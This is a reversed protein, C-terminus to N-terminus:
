ASRAAVLSFSAGPYYRVYRGERRKDVLGSAVLRDAHWHALSPSLGVRECLGKQDVGPTEGIARAIALTTEHRLTAYAAAVQQRSSAGARADPDANERQPLSGPAFFLRNRGNRTSSVLGERELVRLHYTVTNRPMAVADALDAVASGPKARIAGLLQERSGHDLLREKAIRSYLGVLLALGKLRDFLAGAASPAAAAAAATAAVALLPAPPLPAVEPSAPAAQPAAVVPEPAPMPAARAPAPTPAADDIARTLLALDIRPAPGATIDPLPVFRSVPRLVPALVSRSEESAAATEESHAHSTDHEHAPEEAPPAEPAPEEEAPAPALWGNVMTIEENVIGVALAATEAVVPTYEEAQAHAGPLALTALVLILGLTTRPAM